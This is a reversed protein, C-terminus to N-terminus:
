GSFDQVVYWTSGSKAAGIAIHTYHSGLLNAKHDPSAMWM